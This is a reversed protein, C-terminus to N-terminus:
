RGIVDNALSIDDTIIGDVGMVILKEMIKRDNVTWVIVKLSHNHAFDVIEKSCKKCNDM